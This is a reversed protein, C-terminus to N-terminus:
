AETVARIKVDNGELLAPALFFVSMLGAMLGAAIFTIFLRGRRQSQWLLALGVFIMLLGGHLTVVNHLPIFLALLGIFVGLQLLSPIDIKLLTKLAFRYPRLMSRGEIAQGPGDNDERDIADAVRIMAWLVWPLVALSVVETLTGRGVADFLLYPSYIYLA